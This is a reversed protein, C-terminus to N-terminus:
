VKQADWVLPFIGFRKPPIMPQLSFVDEHCQFPNGSPLVTVNSRCYLTPLLEDNYQVSVDDGHLSVLFGKVFLFM